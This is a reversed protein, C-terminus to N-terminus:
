SLSHTHTQLDIDSRTCRRGCDAALIVARQNHTHDLRGISTSCGLSRERCYGLSKRHRRDTVSTLPAELLRFSISISTSAESCSTALVAAAFRRAPPLHQDIDGGRANLYANGSLWIARITSLDNHVPFLAVALEEPPAPPM